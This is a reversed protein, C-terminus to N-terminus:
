FGLEHAAVCATLQLGMNTPSTRLAIAEHPTEQVNDPALWATTDNVFHEFYAWHLRAYRLTTERDAPSLLRRRRFRASPAGLFRAVEPSAIWLLAFVAATARVATTSAAAVSVAVLAAVVAAGVAAPGLHGWIDARGRSAAE